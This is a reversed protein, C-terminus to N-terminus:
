PFNEVQTQNEDPEIHEPEHDAVRARCFKPTWIGEFVTERTHAISTLRMVIPDDKDGLRGPCLKGQDLRPYVRGFDFQMMLEDVAAFTLQHVPRDRFAVQDRKCPREIHGEVVAPANASDFSFHQSAFGARARDREFRRIPRHTRDAAIASVQSSAQLKRLNASIQPGPPTAPHDLNVDKGADHRVVWSELALASQDNSALTCLFRGVPGFILCEFRVPSVQTITQLGPAVDIVPTWDMAPSLRHHPVNDAFVAYRNVRSIM